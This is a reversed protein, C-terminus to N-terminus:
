LAVGQYVRLTSDALLRSRNPVAQLQVQNGADFRFRRNLWTAAEPTLVWLPRPYPRAPAANALRRLCETQDPTRSLAQRLRAQSVDHSPWGTLMLVAGPGPAYPRFPSLSKLLDNTGALIRPRGAGLGNIVRLTQEHRAREQELVQRRHLTKGGYLLLVLMAITAVLPSWRLENRRALGQPPAALLFALNTLLWFVLLPLALRPPLKLVGAFLGFVGGFGMQVLWFWVPRRQRRVYVVATAALALLLPFYDRVLLGARLVLKAPVERGWFDPADFIYARRCLAENVVTSDGMMWMSVAATGLSDAPTRPQPRLQDFDLIRAFYGDLVQTHAEASTRLARGAGTALALGLAASLLLPAVRRPGGALLLAAPLTAGLALMALSPRMLWVAGLGALGLLLPGLRGPRQAAFLLAAGALLLAVRVYSFLLWNELLIVLYFLTLVLALPGPRLYPRLLRDLVALLLVTATGLLASLLLGFWAVGPWATYAAALVRGFGRFYLPLSTVPKLALVGAFLWAISADDSAEYYSGLGAVTALVLGIPLLVVRVFIALRSHHPV